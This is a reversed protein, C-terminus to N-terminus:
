HFLILLDVDPQTSGINFVSEQSFMRWLSGISVAFVHETFDIQDNTIMSVVDGNDGEEEGAKELKMVAGNIREVFEAGSEGTEQKLSHFALTLASKQDHTNYRRELVKIIQFAHSFNGAEIMRKTKPSKIRAKMLTLFCINDKVVWEDQRRKLAAQEAASVAVPAPPNVTEDMPAKPCAEFLADQTGPPCEPSRLLAKYHVLWGLYNDEEFFLFGYDKEQAM